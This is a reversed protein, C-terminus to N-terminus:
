LGELDLLIHRSDETHIHKMCPLKNVYKDIIYQFAFILLWAVDEATTFLNKAGSCHYNVCQLIRYIYSRAINQSTDTTLALLSINLCKCSLTYNHGM